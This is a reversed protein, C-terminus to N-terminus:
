EAFAMMRSKGPDPVGQDVANNVDLLGQATQTILEETAGGNDGVAKHLYETLVCRKSVSLMCKKHQHPHEYRRCTDEVFNQRSM